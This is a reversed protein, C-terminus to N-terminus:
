TRVEPHDALAEYLYKAQQEVKALDTYNDTTSLRYVMGNIEVSDYAAATGIIGILMMVVAALSLIKKM